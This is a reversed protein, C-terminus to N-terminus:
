YLVRYGVYCVMVLILAATWGGARILGTPGFLSRPPRKAFQFERAVTAAPEGGNVTATLNVTIASTNSPELDDAEIVAVCGINKLAHKYKAAKGMDDTRKVVVKRGDLLPRLCEAKGATDKECLGGAAGDPGVFGLALGDQRHLGSRDVGGRLFDGGADLFDRLLEAAAIM